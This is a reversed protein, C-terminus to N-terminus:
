EGQGARGFSLNDWLIQLKWSDGDLVTNLSVHWTPEDLEVKTATRRDIAKERAEVCLADCGQLGHLYKQVIAHSGSAFDTGKEGGVVVTAREADEPTELSDVLEM